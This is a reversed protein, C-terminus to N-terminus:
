KISSVGKFLSALLAKQEQEKKKEEKQKFEDQLKKDEGGKQVSQFV